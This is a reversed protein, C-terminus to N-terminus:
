TKEIVQIRGSFDGVTPRNHIVKLTIVDGATIKLGEETITSFDIMGNLNTFYNRAKAIPNGNKYLNYTAVNDGSFESRILRAISAVPVTYTAVLTETSAPVSLTEGYTSKVVATPYASDSVPGVSITGGAINVDLGVKPGLVTATILNTGDGIRISDNAQDILVEIAPPTVITATADTRLRGTAEDYAGQICQNADLTAPPPASM